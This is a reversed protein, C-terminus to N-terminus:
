KEFKYDGLLQKQNIVSNSEVKDGDEVSLRVYLAASWIKNENENSTYRYRRGM